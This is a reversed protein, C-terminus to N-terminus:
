SPTLIHFQERFIAVIEHRDLLEFPISVRQDDMAFDHTCERDPGHEGRFLRTFCELKKVKPLQHENCREQEPM